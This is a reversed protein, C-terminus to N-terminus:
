FLSSALLKAVTERKSSTGLSHTREWHPFLFAKPDCIAERGFTKRRSGELKHVTCCSPREGPLFKLIEQRAWGERGGMVERTRDIINGFQTKTQVGSMMGLLQRPPSVRVSEDPWHASSELEDGKETERGM